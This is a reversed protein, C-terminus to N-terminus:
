APEKPPCIHSAMQADVWASMSACLVEVDPTLRFENGDAFSWPAVCGCLLRFQLWCRQQMDEPLPPPFPASM